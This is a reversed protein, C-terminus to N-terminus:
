LLQSQKIIDSIEKGVEQASRPRYEVQYVGKEDLLKIVGRVKSMVYGPGKVQVRTIQDITVDHVLYEDKMFAEIREMNLGYIRKEPGPYVLGSSIRIWNNFNCYQSHDLLHRIEGMKFEHRGKEKCWKFALILAHVMSKDVKIM